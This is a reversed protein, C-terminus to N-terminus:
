VHSAGDFSWQRKFAKRSDSTLCSPKPVKRTELCCRSTGTDSFHPANAIWKRRLASWPVWSGWVESSISWTWALNLCPNTSKSLVDSYTMLGQIQPEPSASSISWFAWLSSSGSGSARGSVPPPGKSWLECTPLIKSSNEGCDSGSRSKTAESTLETSAASSLGSTKGSRGLDLDGLSTKGRFCINRTRSAWNGHRSGICVTKTCPFGPWERYHGFFTTRMPLMAVQDELNSSIKCSHLKSAMRLDHRASTHLAQKINSSVTPLEPVSNFPTCSLQYRQTRGLHQLNCRGGNVVWGLKPGNAVLHHWGTIPQSNESILKTHNSIIFNTKVQICQLFFTSKTSVKWRLLYHHKVRYRQQLMAQGETRQNCQSPQWEGPSGHPHGEAQQLSKGQYVNSEQGGWGM